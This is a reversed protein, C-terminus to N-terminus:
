VNSVGAKAQQAQYEEVTKNNKSCNCKKCVIALNSKKNTGGRSVPIKHELTDKGFEIKKLCYICTLTGYLKINEEYVEQIIKKYLRGAARHNALIIQRQIRYKEPNNKRWERMYLNTGEVTHRNWGKTQALGMKKTSCFMCRRPLLRRKDIRIPKLQIKCDFCFESYRLEKNWPTNGKKFGNGIVWSCKKGKNWPIYGKKFM